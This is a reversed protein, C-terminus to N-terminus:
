LHALYQRMRQYLYHSLAQPTHVFRVNIRAGLYSLDPWNEIRVNLLFVQGLPTLGQPDRADVLIAGGSQSGLLPSPLRNSAMPVQNVLAASFTTGPESDFRVIMRDLSQTVRDINKQPVAVVAQLSRTEMVYALLDGKEVWRDQWDTEGPISVVGSINSVVLLNEIEKRLEALRELKTDLASKYINAQTQDSMMVQNRKIELERIEAMLLKETSRLDPNHLQIIPQGPEVRDGSEVLLEGHFGSVPSTIRSEGKLTVVGEASVSFSVPIIFVLLIFIGCLAGVVVAFRSKRELMKASVFYGYIAKCLPWLLQGGFAWLALVVGVFFYKAAVFLAIAISIYVRYLNSAIGYFVFWKKEGIATVPSRESLSGLGYRRFLYRFYRNSRSGLNPIEIADMLLYYGDFRLLPNGNFLVTSVSCIVMANFCLDKAVSPELQLWILMALAAIALEVMIGAGAVVMRQRKHYFGNSSSADVYPLPVFVLLMVGLENVQGGWRKVAFGHGLEHVLKVLPYLLLLYSLNSGDMFRTQWYLQLSNWNGVAQFLAFLLLAGWVFLGVTSFLSNTLPANRQLFADTNWLPIKIALPRMWSHLKRKKEQKQHRQYRESAEDDGWGSLLDAAHLNALINLLESTEPMNEKFKNKLIEHAAAVSNKGNLLKLFLYTQKSCRFYNGSNQDCVLFWSVNRYRHCFFQIKPSLKLKLPQVGQWPDPSVCGQEVM